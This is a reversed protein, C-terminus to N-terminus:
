DARLTATGRSLLPKIPQHVKSIIYHCSLPAADCAAGSSPLGSLPRAPRRAPRPLPRSPRRQLFVYATFRTLATRPSSVVNASLRVALAVAAPSPSATPTGSASRGIVAPPVCQDVVTWTRKLGTKSATSAALPPLEPQCSRRRKRQSDNVMACSGLPIRTLKMHLACVLNETSTSPETPAM